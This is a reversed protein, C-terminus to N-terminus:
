IFSLVLKLLSVEVATSESIGAKFFQLVPALIDQMHNDIKGRGYFTLM